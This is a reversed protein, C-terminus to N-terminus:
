TDSHGNFYGNICLIFSSGSPKKRNCTYNGEQTGYILRTKINQMDSNMVKKAKRHQPNWVIKM